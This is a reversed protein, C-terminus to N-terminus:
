YGKMLDALKNFKCITEAVAADSSMDAARIARALLQAQKRQREQREKEWDQTDELKMGDLEMGDVSDLLDDLPFGSGKKEEM